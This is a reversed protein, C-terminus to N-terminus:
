IKLGMVLFVSIKKNPRLCFRDVAYLSFLYLVNQPSIIVQSGEIHLFSWGSKITNLKIPFKMPGLLTLSGCFFTSM